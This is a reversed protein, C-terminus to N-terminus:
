VLVGLGLVVGGVVGVWGWEVGKGWRRVAGASLPFLSATQGAEIATTITDAAVTTRLVTGGSPGYIGTPVQPLGSANSSINYTTFTGNYTRNGNSLSAFGVSAPDARFVSFVNKLFAAGIQPPQIHAPLSLPSPLSPLLVYSGASRPPRRSPSTSSHM